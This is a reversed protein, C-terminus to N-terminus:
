QIFIHENIDHEGSYGSHQFLTRNNSHNIDRNRMWSRDHVNNERQLHTLM